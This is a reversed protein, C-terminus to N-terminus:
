NEKLHKMHNELITHPALGKNVLARALVGGEPPATRNQNPRSRKQHGKDHKQPM